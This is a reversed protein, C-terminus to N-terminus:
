QIIINFIINEKEFSGLASLSQVTLTWSAHARPQTASTALQQRRGAGATPTVSPGRVM